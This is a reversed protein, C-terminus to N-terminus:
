RIIRTLHTSGSGITADPGAALHIGPQRHIRISWGAYHGSLGVM